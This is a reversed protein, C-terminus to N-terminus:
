QLASRKDRTRRLPGLTLRPPEPLQLAARNAARESSLRFMEPLPSFEQQRSDRLSSVDYGV